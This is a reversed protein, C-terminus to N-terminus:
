CPTSAGLPDALRAPRADPMSALEVCELEVLALDGQQDYYFERGVVRLYAYVGADEATPAYIRDEVTPILGSDEAQIQAILRATEQRRCHLLLMAM